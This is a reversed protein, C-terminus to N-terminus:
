QETLYNWWGLENDMVANFGKWYTFPFFLARSVIEPALLGLVLWWIKRKLHVWRQYRPDPPFEKKSYKSMRKAVCDASEPINLHVASWICLTLTAICTSLLSYTGRYQPEPHWQATTNLEHGFPVFM